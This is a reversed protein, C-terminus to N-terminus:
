PRTSASDGERLALDPFGELTHLGVLSRSSYISLRNCVELGVQRALEVFEPIPHGRPAVKRRRHPSDVDRFRIAHRPRQANRRDGIPDSLLDDTMIQLRDQLRDKM